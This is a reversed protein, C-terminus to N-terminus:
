KAVPALGAVIGDLAEERTLKGELHDRWFGRVLTACAPSTSRTPSRTCSAQAPLVLFLATAPWLARRADM